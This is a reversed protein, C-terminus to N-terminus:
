DTKRQRRFRAKFVDESAREALLNDYTKEIETLSTGVAKAIKYVNADNRISYTVYIHRCHYPTFFDLNHKKLVTTSFQEYFKYFTKEVKQLPSHFPAFVFAEPDKYKQHKTIWRIVYNTGSEEDAVKSAMLLVSRAKKRKSNEKKIHIEARDLKEDIVIDANRLLLTEGTRMGTNAMVLLVHRVLQRHYTEKDDNTRTEAWHYLANVFRVYQAETVRQRKHESVAFKEWVPISRNNTYRKSVAWNFFAKFYILETNVVRTSPAVKKVGVTTRWTLYNNFIEGDINGLKVAKKEPYQYRVFLRLTEFYRCINNYTRKRLADVAVDSELVLRYQRLADDLTPTVVAEGSKLAALLEIVQQFCEQQAESFKATKLSRKYYQRQGKLRMKFYWSADPDASLKFLTVKPSSWNPLTTKFKEADRKGYNARVNSFYDSRTVTAARPHTPLSLSNYEERYEKM